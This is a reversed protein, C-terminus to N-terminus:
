PSRHLPRSFLWSLIAAFAAPFSLFLALFAGQRLGKVNPLLMPSSESPTVVFGLAVMGIVVAVAMAFAAWASNFGCYVSAIAFGIGTVISPAMTAVLLFFILLFATVSLWAQLVSLDVLELMLQLLPGGIALLVLSVVATAALPGVIAFIAVIGFFRAVQKLRFAATM